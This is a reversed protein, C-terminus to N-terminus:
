YISYLFLNFQTSLKLFFLWCCNEKMRIIDCHLVHVCKNLKRESFYFYLSYDFKALSRYGCFEQEAEKLITGM